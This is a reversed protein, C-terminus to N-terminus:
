DEEKMGWVEVEEIAALAEAYPRYIYDVFNDSADIFNITPTDEFTETVYVKVDDLMDTCHLYAVLAEFIITSNTIILSKEDKLSGLRKSSFLNQVWTFQEKAPRRELPYYFFNYPQRIFQHNSLIDNIKDFNGVKNMDGFIITVHNSMELNKFAENQVYM